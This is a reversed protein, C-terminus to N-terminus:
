LSSSARRRTAVVLRMMSAVAGGVLAGVAVAAIPQILVKVAWADWPFSLGRFAVLFLLVALPIGVDVCAILIGLRVGRKVTGVGDILVCLLTGCAVAPGVPAATVFIYEMTNFAWDPISLGVAVLSQSIPGRPFTASPTFRWLVQSAIVGFAVGLPTRWKARTM